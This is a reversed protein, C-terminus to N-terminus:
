TQHRAIPPRQTEIFVVILGNSSMLTRLATTAPMSRLASSSVRPPLNTPSM